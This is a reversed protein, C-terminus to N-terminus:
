RCFGDSAFAECKPSFDECVSRKEAAAAAEDVAAAAAADIADADLTLEAIARARRRKRSSCVDCAFACTKEM